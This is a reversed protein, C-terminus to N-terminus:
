QGKRLDFIDGRKALSQSVLDKQTSKIIERDSAVPLKM